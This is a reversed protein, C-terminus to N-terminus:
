KSAKREEIKSNIYEDIWVVFRAWREADRQPELYKRDFWAHSKARFWQDETHYTIM